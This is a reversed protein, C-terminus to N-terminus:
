GEYYLWLNLVSLVLLFNLDDEYVIIISLPKGGSQKVKDIHEEPLKQLFVYDPEGVFNTYRGKLLDDLYNDLENFGFNKEESSVKAYTINEKGWFAPIFFSNVSFLLEAVLFVMFCVLFLNYHRKMLNQFLNAILLILFPIIMIVFRYTSGIVLFWLFFIMTTSTLLILASMKNKVAQWGTYLLSVLALFNFVPSDAYFLALWFNTFRRGLGGTLERGLRFSWQPVDQGLFASIQFDFHGTARYLFINYLWSPATIVIFIILSYWFYKERWFRYRYIIFYLALIPFIVLSTYKTILALGCIGGFLLWWRPNELIKFLLWFALLLFM